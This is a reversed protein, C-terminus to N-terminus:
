LCQRAPSGRRRPKSAAREILAAPLGLKRRLFTEKRSMEGRDRAHDYGALHLLAHLILIRIEESVSHGLNQANRVAIDLSIAIDGAFGNSFVPAPFSLVDTAQKRNRFRANLSRIERNDTILVTV